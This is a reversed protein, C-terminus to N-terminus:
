CFPFLSLFPGSILFGFCGKDLKFFSEGGGGDEGMAVRRSWDDDFSICRVESYSGDQRLPVFFVSQVWYREV